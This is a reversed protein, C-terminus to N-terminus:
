PLFPWLAPNAPVSFWGLWRNLIFAIDFPFASWKPTGGSMWEWPIIFWALLTWAVFNDDLSALLDRNGLWFAFILPFTVIAVVRTQDASVLLLLMLGFLVLLFPIGAQRREFYKVVVFWGLGLVSWLVYHPHLLTNRLLDPLRGMVWHWRGTNVYIGWHYFLTALVGKGVIVGALLFACWRWFLDVPTNNKKAILVAAFLGGTSFFAQEFHQMGLLVGIFLAWVRNAPFVFASLMLFLTISDMGVWFYATASVPLVAFVILSIRAERDPLRSISLWCFLATFAVSFALNFVFFQWFNKAGILWAVFPQLWNWYLYHADPDPFPNVFPNQAILLSAGLNPIYWIGTKLLSVSFLIAILKRVPCYFIFNQLRDIAVM